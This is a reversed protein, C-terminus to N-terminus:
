SSVHACEGVGSWEGTLDDRIDGLRGAFSTAAPPGPLFGGVLVGSGRGGSGRGGRRCQSQAAATGGVVVALDPGVEVVVGAQRCAGGVEVASAHVRGPYALVRCW